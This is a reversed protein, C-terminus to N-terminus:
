PLQSVTNSLNQENARNGYIKAVYNRGQPDLFTVGENDIGVVKYGDVVEGVEVTRDNVFAVPRSRNLAIGRVRFTAESFVPSIAAPVLVPLAPSTKVADLNVPAQEPKIKKQVSQVLEDADRELV